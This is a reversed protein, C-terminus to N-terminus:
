ILHFVDDVKQDEEERMLDDITPRGQNYVTLRMDIGLVHLCRLVRHLSPEFSDGREFRSLWEVSVEAQAALQRQSLRRHRRATALQEGLTFIDM